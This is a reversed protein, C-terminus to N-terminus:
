HYVVMWWAADSQLKTPYMIYKKFYYNYADKFGSINGHEYKIEVIESWQEFISKAFKLKSEKYKIITIINQKHKIPNGQNLKKEIILKYSPSYIIEIHLTSLNTKYFLVHPLKSSIIIFFYIYITPFPSQSLCIFMLFCLIFNLHMKLLKTTVM